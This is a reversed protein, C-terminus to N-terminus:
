RRTTPTGSPQLIARNGLWAIQLYLLLRRPLFQRKVGLQRVRQLRLHWPMPQTFLDCYNQVLRHSESAPNFLGETRLRDLVVSAQRVSAVFDLVLSRNKHLRKLLLLLGRWLSVAGVRNGPHQRYNVTQENLFVIHGTADVMLALWWDHMVAQDPIPLVCQLAPRNLAVTCGTVFNQVLLVRMGELSEHHIAQYNMFFPSVVRARRNVVRLDSHVLIPTSVGYEQESEALLRLQQEVKRSEWIDDQDVLFMSNFGMAWANELLARFNQVPGLNGRHDHIMRIRPDAQAYERVIALTADRSGDDRVLLTWDRFSQYCLSDLQERLYCAGNYTALLLCVDTTM